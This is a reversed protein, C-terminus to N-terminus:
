NGKYHSTLNLLIYNCLKNFSEEIQFINNHHSNVNCVEINHCTIDWGNYPEHKIVYDITEKLYPKNENQTCRILVIKSNNLQKAQQNSLMKAEAIKVQKAKEIYYHPFHSYEVMANQYWEEMFEEISQSIKHSKLNLQQSYQFIRKNTGNISDFLLVTTHVAYKTELIYAMEHAINGGLSWGGLFYHKKLPSHKIIEDVYISAIKDINDIINEQSYLNRSEVGIINFLTEITKAMPIYCEVGGFFLDVGCHVLYLDELENNISSSLYVLSQYDNVKQNLILNSLKGPTSNQFFSNPTLQIKCLDEIKFILKLSMISNGGLKFFDSNLDIYEYNLVNKFL